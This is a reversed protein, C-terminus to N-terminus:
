SFNTREGLIYVTCKLVKVLIRDEYQRKQNQKVIANRIEKKSIEPEEGCNKRMHESRNDDAYLCRNTSTKLIVICNM